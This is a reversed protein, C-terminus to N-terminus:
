FIPIETTATAKTTIIIMATIPTPAYSSEFDLEGAVVLLVENGFTTEVLATIKLEVVAGADLVDEVEISVVDEQAGEIDVLVEVCMAEVLLTGIELSVVALEAAVLELEAVVERPVLL